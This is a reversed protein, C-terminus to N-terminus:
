KSKMHRRGNTIRLYSENLTKCPPWLLITTTQFAPYNMQGDQNKEDYELNEQIMNLEQEERFSYTHGVTPCKNCRCGGCRPSTETGLEEGRIFNELQSDTERDNKSKIAHSRCHFGHNSQNPSEISMVHRTFEPHDGIRAFYTQAQHQIDHITKALNTDYRTEEKLDPHSGQLCIGLEGSMISLNEGCQAEEKKPHLGSHDCGVLVDVNSSKRQLCEPDYDPFLQNLVDNDLKSVPGTVREMGFANVTVRKGTRAGITFQYECTSYSKEINGMTTVDLTLKRITKAKIRNAARHTIYSSNSGGDCFVSVTTSANPCDQKKHNGFCKFCANVQKLVEYRGQKGSLPLKRFEKCENTTHDTNDKRHAPYACKYFKTMRGNASAHYQQRTFRKKIPQSEALRAVAERERELFKMFHSFPKVKEPSPMDRYKRIWEVRVHNPLFKSIHDVDRMTLINLHDLEQRQCHAAEVEDVLDVLARYHESKAPNM